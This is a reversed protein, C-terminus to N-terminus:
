SLRKKICEECIGEIYTSNMAKFGQFAAIKEISETAKEDLHEVKGCNICKIHMHGSCQREGQYQYSYSRESTSVRRLVGCDVLQSLIRYLTSKPIESLSKEIEDSRFVREPSSLFFSVIEKKHHTSYNM